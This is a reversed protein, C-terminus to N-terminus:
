SRKTECDKKKADDIGGAPTCVTSAMGEMGSNYNTHLVRTVCHEKVTGALVPSAILALAVFTLILKKM